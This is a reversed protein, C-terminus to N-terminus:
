SLEALAKHYDAVDRAEPIPKVVSWRVVGEGDIIFTGRIALGKEEDFVGYAQAVQGHPWFDSLLPFTYGERDAWARHTFVSDVSVTVVQVDEPATAIFEDRIACLEGHCVGSFALPYFILVVRRGRYDSLKVPTGHQDKLEFDPAPSGVEVAM